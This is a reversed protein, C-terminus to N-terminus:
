RLTCPAQHLIKGGRKLKQAANQQEAFFQATALHGTEAQDPDVQDEKGAVTDGGCPAVSHRRCLAQSLRAATRSLPWSQCWGSRGRLGSFKRPLPWARGGPVISGRHASVPPPRVGSSRAASAAPCPRTRNRGTPPHRHRASRSRLPAPRYVRWAGSGRDGAGCPPSRGHQRDPQANPSRHPRGAMRGAGERAQGDNAQALRHRLRKRQMGHGDGTVRCIRPPPRVPAPGSARAPFWHPLIAPRRNHCPISHPDPSYRGYANDCCPSGVASRRAAPAPRRFAGARQGARGQGTSRVADHPISRGRRGAQM